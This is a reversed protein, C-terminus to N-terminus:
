NKMMARMRNCLVRSHGYDRKANANIQMKLVVHQKQEIHGLMLYLKAPTIFTDFLVPKSVSQSVSLFYLLHRSARKSHHSPSCINRSRKLIEVDVLYEFM